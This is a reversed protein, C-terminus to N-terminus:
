TAAISESGIPVSARITTGVQLHSEISLRGKLVKLREEMSILGLGRNERAAKVDFGSGSDSVALTVEGRTGWL